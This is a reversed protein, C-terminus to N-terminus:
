DANQMPVVGLQQMLGLDNENVWIETIRGESLQFIDIGQDHVSAGTAPVGLFPGTHTGNILWRAAAQDGDAIEREVTFQIDPFGTRLNEVFARIQPRGRVPSPLTPIRFVPDDSLIEELVDLRGNSMVEGFYRHILSRAQEPTTVSRAPPQGPNPLAGLQTLLGLTDENALSEVIKGDVIRLWTMGDIRFARGSAAVEGVVTSLPTGRHTGTATWHAVVTDQEALMHEVAFHLDPFSGHLMTVLQKFGGPGHFPEPQTPITFIFDPTMLEDIVDLQGANMIQDYYRRAITVNRENVM